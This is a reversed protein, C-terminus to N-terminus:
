GVIGSREIGQVLYKQCFLYIVMLPAMILLGATNKVASTYDSIAKNPYSSDLALKPPVAVIDPMLIPKDGGIYLLDTYFNDTWQWSFAFLFVTIMMPISLPLIITFFTRFVGSGDIYASEELEDPVGKFFQRLMFIYLGNKFAIAGASLMYLPINTNVLRISGSGIGIKELLGFIGLVDFYAFNQQMSFQLVGHPVVMTLIVLLFLFKNGKFRFKAFGYAVLCCIFTQLLACTLSLVTTNWLAKFFNNELIIYKYQDLTPSKAILKVTVNTIDEPSMISAAIKAIFPYIIVYSIGILLIFRFFKFITMGLFRFTLYKLKFREWGSVRDFEVRIKNKTEKKIKPATTQENM